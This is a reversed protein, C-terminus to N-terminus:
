SETASAATGTILSGNWSIFTGTFLNLSEGYSTILCEHVTKRVLQQSLVTSNAASISHCNRCLVLATPLTFHWLLYKNFIQTHSDIQVCKSCYKGVCFCLQTDFYLFILSNHPISFHMVAIAVCSKNYCDFKWLDGCYM